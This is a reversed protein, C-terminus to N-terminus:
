QVHVNNMFVRAMLPSLSHLGQGIFVYYIYQVHVLACGKVCDGWGRLREEKEGGGGEGM